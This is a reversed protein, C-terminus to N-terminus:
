LYEVGVVGKVVEATGIFKLMLATNAPIEFGMEKANATDEKFRDGSALTITQYTTTDAQDKLDVQLSNGASGFRFCFLRLMMTHNPMSPLNVTTGGQPLSGTPGRVYVYKPYASAPVSLSCLRQDLLPFSTASSNDPQISVNHQDHTNTRATTDEQYTINKVDRIVVDANSAATTGDLIGIVKGGEAEINTLELSCNAWVKALTVTTPISGRNLITSNKISTTPSNSGNTYGTTVRDILSAHGGAGDDVLEMRVGDFVVKHSTRTFVGSATLNYYVLSGHFIMSGGTWRIFSGKKLNFTTALNKNKVTTLENNEWNCNVFNWNVAQDNDNEMLWYCQSFQCKDFYFESGMSTGTVAFCKYFASFGCREFRWSRLPNGTQNITFAVQEDDVGSSVFSIDRWTIARSSTCKLTAATGDFIIETSGSGEGSVTLGCVGNAPALELIDDIRHKGPGLKIEGTFNRLGDTFATRAAIATNLIATTDDAAGDAAAGYSKVSRYAERVVTRLDRVSAGTGTHQFGVKSAGDSLNIGLDGLAESQTAAGVISEGFSGVAVDITAPTGVIVRNDRFIMVSNKWFDHRYVGDTVKYEFEGDTGTVLPQTLPQDLADTLTAEVGTSTYVWLSAGEIPLGNREDILNDSYVAM